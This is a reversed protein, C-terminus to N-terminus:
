HQSSFTVIPDAHARGINGQLQSLKDKTSVKLLILDINQYLGQTLHKNTLCSLRGLFMGM